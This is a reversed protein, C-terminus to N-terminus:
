LAVGLLAFATAPQDLKSLWKGVLGAKTIMLDAETSAARKPRDALEGSLKGHEEVTLAGHALGFRLGERVPGALSQARAPLGAHLVPNKAVWSGLHTATTRPLAERTGRHMVLPVVLFALPWPMPEDGAREYEIAAAATITALLAPNLM